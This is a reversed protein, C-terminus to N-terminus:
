CVSLCLCPRGEVFFQSVYWRYAPIAAVAGIALSRATRKPDYEKGRIRQASVDAAAYIVLASCVQVVYPRKRQARGYAQIV